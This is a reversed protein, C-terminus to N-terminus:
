TKIVPITISYHVGKNKAATLQLTAELQQTLINILRIGLTKKSEINKASFGIGNDSIIFNFSRATKVFSLEIQLPTKELRNHKLSNTVVENLILGLTIACDIDVREVSDVTFTVSNKLNYSSILNEIVQTAYDKFDVNNFRGKEYLRQHVLSMSKIRDTGELLIKKALPDEITKAQLSLISSVTQLNNKVRHHVEKLLTEKEKNRSSLISNINKIEKNKWNRFWNLAILGLILLGGIIRVLTIYKYNNELNKKQLMLDAVSKEYDIEAQLYAHRETNKKHLILSHLSDEKKKYFFAEKYNLQQEYIASLNKYGRLMWEKGDIPQVLLIAEKNYYIASDIKQQEQYLEAIDLNSGAIHGLHKTQLRIKKSARFRRLAEPYNGLDTYILGSNGLLNAHYTAPIEQTTQEQLLLGKNYFELAKTNQNNKRYAYGVANLYRIQQVTDKQATAITLSKKYNELMMPYEKLNYYASALLNFVVSHEKTDEQKNLLLIAEKTAEMQQQYDGIFYFVDHKIQAIAILKEASNLELAITTAKSAFTLSKKPALHRYHKALGIYGNLQAATPATSKTLALLSDTKQQSFALSSSLAVFVLFIKKLLM